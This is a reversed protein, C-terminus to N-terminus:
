PEVRRFIENAILDKTMAHYSRKAGHPFEQPPEQEIIKGISNKKLNEPLM